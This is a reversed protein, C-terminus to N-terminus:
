TSQSGEICKCVNDICIQFECPEGGGSDGPGGPDGSDGPEGPEPPEGPEGSPPSTSPQQLWCEGGYCNDMCMSYSDGAPSQYGYGDLSCYYVQDDAVAIAPVAALLLAALLLVHKM